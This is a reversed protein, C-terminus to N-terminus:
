SWLHLHLNLWWTGSLSEPRSTLRLSLSFRTRTHTRTHTHKCECTHTPSCSLFSTTVLSFSTPLSVDRTTHHPTQIQECSFPSSRFSKLCLSQWLWIQKRPLCGLVPTSTPSSAPSPPAPLCRHSLTLFPLSPSSFTQFSIGTDPKLVLQISTCNPLFRFGPFPPPKPFLYYMQWCRTSHSAHTSCGPAFTWNEMQSIFGWSSFTILMFSVCQSGRIFSLYLPLVLIM